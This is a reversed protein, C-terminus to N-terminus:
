KSPKQPSTPSSSWETKVIVKRRFRKAVPNGKPPEPMCEAACYILKVIVQTKSTHTLRCLKDLRELDEGSLRITIAHDRNIKSYETFTAKALEMGETMETPAVGYESAATLYASYFENGM